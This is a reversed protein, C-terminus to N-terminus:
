DRSVRYVYIKGVGWNVRRGSRFETYMTDKGVGVGGGTLGKGVELSPICLMRELEGTLGKRNYVQYIYYRKGSGILGKESRSEIFRTDKGVGWNVREWQLVASLFSCKRMTCSLENPRDATKYVAVRDRM